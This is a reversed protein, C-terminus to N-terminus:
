QVNCYAAPPAPSSHVLLHIICCRPRQQLWTEFTLLRLPLVHSRALADESRRRRRAPFPPLTLHRPLQAPAAVLNGAHLTAPDVLLAVGARLLTKPNPPPPLLLPPLRLPLPLPLAQLPPLPRDPNATEATAAAAAVARRRRPLAVTLRLMLLPLLLLLLRLLVLLLPPPLATVAAEVAAAVEAAAAHLPSNATLLTM